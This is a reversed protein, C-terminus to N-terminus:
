RDQEISGSECLARRLDPPLAIARGGRPDEGDRGVLCTVIRGTVARGEPGRIELAYAVSSRGVRDVALEVTVLDDFKLRREFEFHVSLRPSVGFTLHTIGLARHMEAEASEALRGVTSWHYIGAADTDMWEIRRKIAIRAPEGVDGVEASGIPNRIALGWL